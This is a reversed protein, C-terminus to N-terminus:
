LEDSSSDEKASSFGSLLFSERFGDTVLVGEPRIAESGGALDELFRLASPSSDATGLPIRSITDRMSLKRTFLKSFSGFRFSETVGGAAILIGSLLRDLDNSRSFDLWTLSGLLLLDSEFSFDFALSKSFSRPLDELRKSEDSCWFGLDLRLREVELSREFDSM